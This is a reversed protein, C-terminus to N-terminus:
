TGLKEDQSELFAIASLVSMHNTKYNNTTNVLQKGNSKIEVSRLIRLIVEQAKMFLM